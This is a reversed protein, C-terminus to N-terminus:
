VNPGQSQECNIMWPIGYRDRLMGFRVAWFTQQLPMYVEGKESLAEYIREAEAPDTVSISVSFGAPRQYRDPPSDAGMFTDGDAVLTAHMVKDRWEAPVQENGPMDANRFISVIKGRFCQEYFRFAEECQGNFSLYPNLHM